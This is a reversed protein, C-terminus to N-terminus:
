KQNYAETFAQQFQALTYCLYSTGGNRAIKGAWVTQEDSMYNGKLKLEFTTFRYNYFMHLDHVGATVGTAKFKAAEIRNRLGGNPVAWLVGRIAPFQNYAWQYCAAQLQDESQYGSDEPKFKYLM